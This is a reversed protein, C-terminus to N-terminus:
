PRGIRVSSSMAPKESASGSVKGVMSFRREITDSLAMMASSESAAMIGIVVPLISRVTPYPITSQCMRAIM